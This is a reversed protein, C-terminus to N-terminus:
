FREEWVAAWDAVRAAYIRDQVIEIERPVSLVDDKRKRSPLDPLAQEETENEM